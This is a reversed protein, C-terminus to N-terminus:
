ILDMVGYDDEKINLQEYIFNADFRLLDNITIIDVPEPYMEELLYLLDMLKDNEIITKLTDVAGEWLEDRLEFGDVDKVISLM